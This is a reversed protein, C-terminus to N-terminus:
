PIEERCMALGCLYRDDREGQTFARFGRPTGSGRFEARVPGKPQAPGVFAWLSGSFCRGMCWFPQPAGKASVTGYAGGSHSERNSGDFPEAVSDPHSQRKRWDLGRLRM